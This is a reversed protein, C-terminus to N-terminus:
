ATQFVVTQAAEVFYPEYTDFLDEKSGYHGMEKLLDFNIQGESVNEDGALAGAMRMYRLDEETINLPMNKLSRSAAIQEKNKGGNIFMGNFLMTMQERLNGDKQIVDYINIQNQVSALEKGLANLPISTVKANGIQGAGTSSDSQPLLAEELVERGELKQGSISEAIDALASAEDTKLQEKKDRVNDYATLMESLKLLATKAAAQVYDTHYLNAAFKQEYEDATKQWDPHTYILEKYADDTYSAGM